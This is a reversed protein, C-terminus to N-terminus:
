TERAQRDRAATFHTEIRKVRFITTRWSYIDYIREKRILKNTLLIM